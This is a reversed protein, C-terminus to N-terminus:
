DNKLIAPQPNPGLAEPLSKRFDFGNWDSPSVGELRLLVGFSRATLTLSDILQWARDPGLDELSIAPEFTLVATQGDQRVTFAAGAPIASANSDAPATKMLEAAEAFTAAERASDPALFQRGDLGTYIFYPSSEEKGKAASGAPLFAPLGMAELDLETSFAAALEKELVDAAIGEARLQEASIVVSVPIDANQSGLLRGHLIRGGDLSYLAYPGAQGLDNLLIRSEAAPPQGSTEESEELAKDSIEASQEASRDALPGGDRFTPIVVAAAFLAALAVLAAPLLQRKRNRGPRSAAEESLRSDNQLRNLLESETRKDLQDPLSRLLAELRDDEHKEAMIRRGERM